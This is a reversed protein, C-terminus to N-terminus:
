AGPMLKHPTWYKAGPCFRTTLVRGTSYAAFVEPISVEPEDLLNQRITEMVRAENAFDLEQEIM